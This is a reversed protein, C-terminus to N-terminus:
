FGEYRLNERPTGTALLRDVVAQVPGSNGCVLIQQHDFPAFRGVVEALTGPLMEEPQFGVNVKCAEYWADTRVPDQEDAVVPLVTLWPFQETLLYLMDAAYLDRPYRGGLFLTLNPPTARRSLDLLLARLPALGIGDAIMVVETADEDVTLWGGPNGIRWEDGARTDEVLSGSCFGGPVTRVHFELKGDLSPPLASYLRRVINPHQPTRVEMSQGASFPVFEGILRIVALDERLRHAGVVTASWEGEAASPGFPSNSRAAPVGDPPPTDPTVIPLEDTDAYSPVAKIIPFEDTDDPGRTM